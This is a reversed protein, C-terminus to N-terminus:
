QRTLLNVIALLIVAGVVAVAFGWISTINFSGFSFSFGQGAILNFLAGGIAAGVVGVIVNMICGQRRNRGTVVSALWGALGGIIIWGLLNCMIKGKKLALNAPPYVDRNDDIVCLLTL